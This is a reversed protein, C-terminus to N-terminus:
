LSYKIYRHNIFKEDEYELEIITKSPINFNEFEDDNINLLNKMLVRTCHKHTIILPIKPITLTYLIDNEYYPLLRELVDQKSEGNEKTKYYCNRYVSYNHKKEVLEKLVPPKMYFNNRMMHTFKKGYQERIYNRPIGELTGYHKENLRWTTYLKLDNRNLQKEFNNKIISASDLSRKLVSSFFINPFINKEILKKSIVNAEYKGKETLPIDTWGTFKSDHNWISQGHRVLYVHQRRTISKM